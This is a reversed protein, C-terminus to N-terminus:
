SHAKTPAVIIEDPRGLRKDTFRVEQKVTHTIECCSRLRATMLGTVGHREFRTDAGFEM